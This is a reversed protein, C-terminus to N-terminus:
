QWKDLTWGDAIKEALLAYNWIGWPSLTIQEESLNEVFERMMTEVNVIFWGKKEGRINHETRMFKPVEVWEPIEFNGIHDVMKRHKALSLSFSIFYEEKQSVLAKIDKPENKYVGPLIRILSSKFRDEEVYQFYGNGKVTSISFVDGKKIRAM